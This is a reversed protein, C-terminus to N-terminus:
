ETGWGVTPHLLAHFQRLVGLQRADRIPDGGPYARLSLDLGVVACMRALLMVDVHEMLGREIRSGTAVSIGVADCVDRLRLSRNARAARLETGVQFRLRRGRDTGRDFPRSGSPM